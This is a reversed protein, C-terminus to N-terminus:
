LEVFGIVFGAGVGNFAVREFRVTSFVRGHGLDLEDVWERTVDDLEGIEATGEQVGFGVDGDGEEQDLHVNM